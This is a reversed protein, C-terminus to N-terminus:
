EKGPRFKIVYILGLVVLLAGWWVAAHLNALVVPHSAPNALDYIGSALILVGYVLLLAGIFFWISIFHKDPM